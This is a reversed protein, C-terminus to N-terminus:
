STSGSNTSSLATFDVRFRALGFDGVHATLSEDLLINSPKIDCHVIRRQNNHHLYELADAVDVLICLREGLTIRGLSSTHEDNQISHLLVHLDGRPMFKYVVAMFDNGKSDISSCATLVPVLNRHRVNRLVNCEAFFSNQAGRTELSFVKIAVKIRDQFLIGQYVSSFSGKGILNSTSFNKTARALDNYSVDPYKKGFSPLIVPNRRQKVRWILVASVIIALSVMSALPIMVLKKLNYQKHMSPDPRIAPPCAKLHLEM